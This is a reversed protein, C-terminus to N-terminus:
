LGFLNTQLKTFGHAAAWLDVVVSALEDVEPAATGDGIAKLYTRCTQCAEITIYPFEQSTTGPLVTGTDGGCSLCQTGAHEWRHFCAGCLLSRRGEQLVVAVPLEACRPCRGLEVAPRSPCAVQRLVRHFFAHLPDAGDRGALDELLHLNAPQAGSALASQFTAIHRYFDLVDPEVPSLQALERARGLRQQWLAQM